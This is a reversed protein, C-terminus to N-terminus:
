LLFKVLSSTIPNAWSGPPPPIPDESSGSNNSLLPACVTPDPFLTTVM